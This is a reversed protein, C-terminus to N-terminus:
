NIKNTINKKENEIIEVEELIQYHLKLFMDYYAPKIEMDKYREVIMEINTTLTVFLSHYKKYYNLKDVLKNTFRLLDDADMLRKLNKDRKERERKREESSMYRYNVGGSNSNNEM